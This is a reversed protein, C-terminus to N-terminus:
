RFNREKRPCRGRFLEFALSSTARGALMGVIRALAEDVKAANEDRRGAARCANAYNMIAGLPQNVEHAISATLEMMTVRSVHALELQM